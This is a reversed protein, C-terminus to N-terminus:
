APILVHEVILGLKVLAPAATPVATMAPATRVGIPLRPPTSDPICAASIRPQACVASSSRAPASGPVTSCTAPPQTVWAPPCALLM